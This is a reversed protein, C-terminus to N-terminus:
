KKRTYTGKMELKKITHLADAWEDCSWDLKDKDVATMRYEGHSTTGDLGVSRYKMRWTKSKADYSANGHQPYGWDNFMWWQYGKSIPHWTWVGDAEFTAKANTSKMHGVLCRQDLSWKWEATGTWNRDAGEANLMEAKWDWSGVFVDYASLQAPREPRTIKAFDVKVAACGSFALFLLPVALLSRRTIASLSM